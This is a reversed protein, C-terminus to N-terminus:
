NIKEIKLYTQVSDCNWSSANSDYTFRYIGPEVDLTVHAGCEKPTLKRGTLKNYEELDFATVWWLDTCVNGKLTAEKNSYIPNEANEDSEEYFASEVYITNGKQLIGPCSNGVFFSAINYKSYAESMQFCGKKNNIDFSSSNFQEELRELVDRGEDPWDCFILKGSPVAIDFSYKDIRTCKSIEKIYDNGIEFKIEEGCHYCKNYGYQAIIPKNLKQTEENFSDAFNRFADFVLEKIKKLLEEKNGEKYYKSLCTEHSDEVRSLNNLLNNSFVEMNTFIDM